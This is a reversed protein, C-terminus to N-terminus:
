VENEFENKADRRSQIRHKMRAARGLVERDRRARLERTHRSLCEAREDESLDSDLCQHIVTEVIAPISVAEHHRHWTESNGIVCGGPEYRIKVQVYAPVHDCCTGWSVAEVVGVGWHPDVHQVQHGIIQRWRDLDTEAYRAFLESPIWRDRRDEDLTSEGTRM